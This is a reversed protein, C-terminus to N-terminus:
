RTPALATKRLGDHTIFAIAREAVSPLVRDAIHDRYQNEQEAKAPEVAVTRGAHQGVPSIRDDITMPM